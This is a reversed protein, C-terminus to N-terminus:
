ILSKMIKKKNIGSYLLKLYISKYDNLHPVCILFKDVQLLKRKKISKFEFINKRIKVNSIKDDFILLNKYGNYNLFYEISKGVVGYGYLAIKINKKNKLFNLILKKIKRMESFYNIVKNNKYFNNKIIIDGSKNILNNPFKFKRSTQYKLTRLIFQEFCTKKRSVIYEKVSKNFKKINQKEFKELIKVAELYLSDYKINVKSTLGGKNYNHKIIELDLTKFKKIFSMVKTIFILDEAYRFNEFLINNSLLFKRSYVYPFCYNVSQKKTLKKLLNYKSTINSKLGYKSQGDDIYNFFILEQDNIKLYDIIKKFKKKIFEDDSDLFIIYKGTSAKIGVNRTRGVGLNKKNKIIKLNSFKKKFKKIIDISRDDSSDDIFIIEYLHQKNEIYCSKITRKLYNSSNYNPIVVSLIINQM